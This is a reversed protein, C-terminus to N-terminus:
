TDYSIHVFTRGATENFYILLDSSFVAKSVQGGSPLPPPRNIDISSFLMSNLRIVVGNNSM